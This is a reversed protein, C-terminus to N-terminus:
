PSKPKCHDSGDPFPAAGTEWWNNTEITEKIKNNVDVEVRLYRDSFSMMTKSPPLPFSHAAITNAKLPGMDGEVTAIVKSTSSLDNHVILRVRILTSKPVDGNCVNSILVTVTKGGNSSVQVDKVKLDPLLSSNNNGGGSNDNNATEFGYLILSYKQWILNKDESLKMAINVDQASEFTYYWSGSNITDSASVKLPDGLSAGAMNTMDAEFQTAYNNTEGRLTLRFKGPKAKFRYYYTAGKPGAQGANPNGTIITPNNPDTSQASTLGCLAVLMFLLPCSRTLAHRISKTKPEFGVSEGALPHVSATHKGSNMSSVLIAKNKM